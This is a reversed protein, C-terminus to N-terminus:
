RRGRRTTGVGGPLIQEARRNDSKTFSFFLLYKQKNLIAACPTEKHCKWTHTYYLRFQNMEEM